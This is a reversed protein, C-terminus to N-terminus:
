WTSERTYCQRQFSGKPPVRSTPIRIGLSDALERAVQRARHAGLPTLGFGWRTSRILRQKLLEQRDISGAVITSHQRVIAKALEGGRIEMLALQQSPSLGHPAHFRSFLLQSERNFKAKDEESMRLPISMSSEVSQSAVLLPELLFRRPRDEGALPRDRLSNPRTLITM